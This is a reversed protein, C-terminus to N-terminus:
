DLFLHPYKERMAEEMEWTAEEVEHNSWLVKVLSVRSTRTERVKSDLIRVPTEEYRLTPQLKLREPQLVHSPHSVYRKLQSVHFVRHVDGVEAPLDLRYASPGVREVVDYPGVYKPSLKGKQGFRFVGRMPSVRLFARDGVAFEVDRRKPDAYSKQRDQAAKMNKRILNVEERVQQIYDPGLTVHDVTDDWSLPTRCPRGYLAQFPPMQISAHYSNNYSFEILPLRVSWNGQYDLACARLMDELTQITRESQGDTQPHFATSLRLEIGFAETVEKWFKSTFRADRDSVITKPVGHHRIHEHEFVKVLKAVSWTSQIPIFKAVKTLRDVIVWIMDAGNQAKPLGVVFDMSIDDFKWFPVTLPEVLGPPRRHEFKVKQCTLCANVFEAVDRKM